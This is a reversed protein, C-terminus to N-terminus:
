NEKRVIDLTDTKEERTWFERCKGNQREIKRNSEEAWTRGGTRDNEQGMRRNVEGINREKNKRYREEDRDAEGGEKWGLFDM